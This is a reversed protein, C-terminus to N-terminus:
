VGRQHKLAQLPVTEDPPKGSIEPQILYYPTSQIRHRAVVVLKRVVALPHFSNLGHNTREHSGM